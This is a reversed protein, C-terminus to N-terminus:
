CRCCIFLKVNLVCDILWAVLVFAIDTTPINQLGIFNDPNDIMPLRYTSFHVDM